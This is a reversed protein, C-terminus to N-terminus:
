AADDLLRRLSADIDGLRAADPLAAFGLTVDQPEVRETFPRFAVAGPGGLDAPAGNMYSTGRWLQPGNMFHPPLGDSLARLRWRTRNADALAPLGERLARAISAFRTSATTRWARDRPAGVDLAYARTANARFAHLEGSGTLDAVTVGAPARLWVDDNPLPGFLMETHGVLDKAVLGASKDISMSAGLPAESATWALTAGLVGDVQAFLQHDFVAVEPVSGDHVHVTPFFLSTPDRRPFRFAMPHITQRKAGFLGGRPKLRFVAFGWDAYRPLRAWVADPLRFRADLRSFDRLTPVFSAEFAGVDHVVLPAPRPAPAGFSLRSAQMKMMPPFASELDAFFRPYGELDVFAVADEAPSPPVPLPLVMALDEALEVDMAYALVQRGDPEARAFIKTKAVLKVPRSFCCM